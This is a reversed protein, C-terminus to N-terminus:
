LVEWTTKDKNDNLKIGKAILNDRIKDSQAFDKNKRAEERETILMEIQSVDINSALPIWNKWDKKGIKLLGLFNGCLSLDDYNGEKYFEHLKSIAL